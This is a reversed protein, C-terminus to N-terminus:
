SIDFPLTGRKGARASLTLLSQIAQYDKELFRRLNARAKDSLTLLAPKVQDRNVHVRQVQSVGLNAAIDADLTETAMVLYIQRPTLKPLLDSLYYDIDEKLHHITRFDRAVDVNLVGTDSYLAMALNDMTAYKALINHEGEFREEQGSEEVVLKYRWNFASLARSVPERVVVLYRANKLVPPKCIHLKHLNRFDRQVPESKKIARWLSTGGCKGIHIYILTDKTDEIAKFRAGHGYIRNITRERHDKPDTQM